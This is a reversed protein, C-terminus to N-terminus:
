PVNPSEAKQIIHCQTLRSKTYHSMPHAGLQKEHYMPHSLKKYLTVNPSEAKQIIHCQTVRSKTYHSM